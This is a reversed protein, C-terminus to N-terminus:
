NFVKPEVGTGFVIGKALLPKAKIGGGGGGGIKCYLAFAGLTFEDCRGIGGGGGGGTGKV